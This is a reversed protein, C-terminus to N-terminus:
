PKKWTANEKDEASAGPIQVIFVAGGSPHNQAQLAGGFGRVIDASIALGLGLGLGQEKTTFFPEFLHQRVSDAIGTGNDHVEIVVNGAEERIAIRLRAPSTDKMADLANALLNLLVQGLRNAECMAFVDHTPQDIDVAVNEERIRADLLLLTDAIVVGVATPRYQVPAKHAFKKLQGTIKGMREVLQCIVELNSSAESISGRKFFVITNAAITRLAALPQNLEHTIGTSMQGLAAMKSAHVLEEMTGKLVQEAHIREAVEKHLRSNSNSLAETRLEVKRELDDHARQLAENALRNQVATRRRQHLYLGILFLFCLASAAVFAGNRAALRIPATDSLVILRWSTEPVPYSQALLETGSRLARSDTNQGDATVRVISVGGPLRRRGGFGIPALSGIMSYQRTAALKGQTEPSLKGLTKFRWEPQSTLFVVGNGDVVMVKDEGTSWSEDLRELNVKLVAVGLLMGDAYIPHSFYYGPERSVTGIGYFRGPLGQSADHFYPRYSFNVGVFSGPENWNSAALTLGHADMVYIASSKAEYNARELFLNVDRSLTSDEPHRLMNIVRENLVMVAPLYEYRRLESHLGGTYTEVRHAISEGMSRVGALEGQEYGVWAGIAVIAAFLGILMLDFYPRRM